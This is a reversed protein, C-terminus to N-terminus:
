ERERGCQDSVLPRGDAVPDLLVLPGDDVQRIVLGTQPSVQRSSRGLPYTSVTQSAAGVNKDVIGLVPVLLVGIVDSPTMRGNGVDDFESAVRSDAHDHEEM